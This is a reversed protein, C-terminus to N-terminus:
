RWDDDPGSSCKQRKFSTRRERERRLVIRFHIIVGAFLCAIALVFIVRGLFLLDFYFAVASGVFMAVGVFFVKIGALDQPDSKM